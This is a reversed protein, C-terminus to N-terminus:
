AEKDLKFEHVGVSDLKYMALEKAAAKLSGARYLSKINWTGLNNLIRYWM